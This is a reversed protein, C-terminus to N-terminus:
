ENQAESILVLEVFPTSDSLDQCSPGIKVSLPLFFHMGFQTSLMFLLKAISFHASDLPYM